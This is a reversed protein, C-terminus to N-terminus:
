VLPVIMADWVRDPGITRAAEALEEVSARAFHQALSERHKAELLPVIGAIVKNRMVPDTINMAVTAYFRSIRTLAAAQGVTPETLILRGTVLDAAIFAREAGSLKCRAIANGTITTTTEPPTKYLM